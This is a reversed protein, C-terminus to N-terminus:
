TLSLPPPFLFPHLFAFEGSLLCNVGKLVQVLGPLITLSSAQHKFQPGSNLEQIWTTSSNILELRYLCARVYVCVPVCVCVNMITHTCLCMCVFVCACVCICVCVTACVCHDTGCIILFTTMLKLYHCCLKISSM